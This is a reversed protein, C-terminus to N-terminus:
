DDLLLLFLTFFIPYLYDLIGLLNKPYDSFHCFQNQIRALPTVTLMATSPEACLFYCYLLPKGITKGSQSVGQGANKPM